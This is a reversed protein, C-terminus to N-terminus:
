RYLSLFLCQRCYSRHVDWRLGPIRSLRPTSAYTVYLRNESVAATVARVFRPM